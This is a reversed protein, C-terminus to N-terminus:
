RATATSSSTTASRATDTADVFSSPLKTSTRWQPHFAAQPRSTGRKAHGLAAQVVGIAAVLLLVGILAMWLYAGWTMGGM